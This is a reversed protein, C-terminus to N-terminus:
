ADRDGDHRVAHRLVELLTEDSVSGDLRITRRQKGESITIVLSRRRARLWTKIVAAIATIASAACALHVATEAGKHRARADGPDSEPRVPAVHTLIGHALRIDDYLRNVQDPWSDDGSPEQGSLPKIVVTSAQWDAVSSEVDEPIIVMTGMSIYARM